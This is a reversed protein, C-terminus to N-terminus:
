PGSKSSRERPLMPLSSGKMPDTCIGAPLAVPDPMTLGAPTTPAFETRDTGVWETTGCRTTPPTPMSM